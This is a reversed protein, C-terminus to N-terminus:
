EREECLQLCQFYFLFWDAQHSLSCVYNYVSLWQFYLQNLTLERFLIYEGIRDWTGLKTGVNMLMLTEKKSNKKKRIFPSYCANKKLQVQVGNMFCHNQVLVNMCEKNEMVELSFVIVWIFDIQAMLQKNCQTIVDIKLHRSVMVPLRLISCM